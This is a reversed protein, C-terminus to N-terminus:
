HRNESVTLLISSINLPSFCLFHITQVTLASYSHSFDCPIVKHKDWAGFSLLKIICICIMEICILKTYWNLIILWLRAFPIQISAETEVHEDIFNWDISHIQLKSNIHRKAIWINQKTLNKKKQFYKLSKYLLHIHTYANGEKMFLKMM